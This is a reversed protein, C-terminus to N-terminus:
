RRGERQHRAIAMQAAQRAARCSIADAPEAAAGCLLLGSLATETREGAGALLRGISAPDSGHVPAVDCSAVRGGFGPLVREIAATVSRALGDRDQAAGQPLPWARVCLQSPLSEGSPAPAVLELVLEDSVKGLRAATLASAYGDTKEAIVYRHGPQVGSTQQDLGFALTAGQPPEPAVVRAAGLGGAGTPMLASTKRRSLASLVLPAEIREGSALEAGAVRDGNALLGSATAGARIEVGAQKAALALAQMLGGGRPEATAGQQGCMEQAANWALVLASGPDGPAFGARAADFALVAKLADTEFWSDLWASASVVCLREALARRETSLAAITEAVPRGDWWSPRLARGLDFLTRVFDPFAAADAESSAAIGRPAHRAARPVILPPAGPRLGALSVDRFAFGLGHRALRLETVVRPDLAHLLGCPPPATEATELLVTFIGARALYAAAALGSADGGIVVAGAQGSM